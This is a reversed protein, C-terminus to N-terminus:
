TNFLILLFSGRPTSYIQIYTYICLSHYLVCVTYSYDHLYSLYKIISITYVQIIKALRIEYRSTSVESSTPLYRSTSRCMSRIKYYHLANTWRGGREKLHMTITITYTPENGESGQVRGM